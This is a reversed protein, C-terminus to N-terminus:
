AMSRSVQPWAFSHDMITEDRSEPASAFPPIRGMDVVSVVRGDILTAGVACQDSGPQFLDCGPAIKLVRSVMFGVYSDAQACVVVTRFINQDGVEPAILGGADEIPLLKGDFNLVAQPGLYEISLLRIQEIRVVNSLPIATKRGAIDVLLFDMIQDVTESAGTMHEMSETGANRRIRARAAIASSDLILVLTGNGLITVGSYLGISSLVPSLPKVVIEHLGAIEDVVLGLHREGANLVVVFCDYSSHSYPERYLSLMRDLFILPLLKGRFRYLPIDDIWEVASVVHQRSIHVLELLSAQPIAFSQQM